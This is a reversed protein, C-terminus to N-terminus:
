RASTPPEVYLLKIRTCAVFSAVAVGLLWCTTAFIELLIKTLLNKSAVFNAITCGIYITKKEPDVHVRLEYSISVMCDAPDTDRSNRSPVLFAIFTLRAATRGVPLVDMKHCWTAGARLRSIATWDTDVDCLPPSRVVCSGSLEATGSEDGDLTLVILIRIPQQAWEIPGYRDGRDRTTTTTTTSM